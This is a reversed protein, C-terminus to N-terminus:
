TAVCIRRLVRALETSALSAVVAISLSNMFMNMSSGSSYSRNRRPRAEVAFRDLPSYGRKELKTMNAQLDAQAKKGVKSERMVRAIDVYRISMEASAVPIDSVLLAGMVSLLLFIKSVKHM